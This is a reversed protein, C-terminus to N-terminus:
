LSMKKGVAQVLEGPNTNLINFICFNQLKYNTIIHNIYSTRTTCVIEASKSLLERFIKDWGNGKLELWGVEDIIYIATKEEKKLGESIIKEGFSVGEKKFAFKGLVVDDPQKNTNCLLRTRGSNVDELHYAVRGYNYNKTAATFGYLKYNEAKLLNVVKKTFTTKGQGKEGSIFYVM